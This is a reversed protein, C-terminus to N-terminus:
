EGEESLPLALTFRAGGEARDECWVSGGHARATEEVLSLGLGTGQRSGRSGSRAFREFILERDAEPVGPGADDVRILARGNSTTVNVASLGGGHLDANDFLNVLARNLEQKDALVRVPQTPVSLLETARHNESLAHAVLDRLDVDVVDRHATGADLRGLELLHELARRLRDVEGEVLEVARQARLPLENRSGALVDVSTMLTTVPSRLEHSVDAAFRADRHVREELAEVMTNFSGVIVSLDPDETAGLRTDMQGAAIRAAATAVSELPAIARAAAARSMLTGGITTLAAFAALVSGLTTLTSDLESASAIQYFNAEVAPLPVGVVIVPRGDLRSWAVGAAGSRVVQRVEPAIADEAVNLSSSYWREQRKVLVVSGSSGPVSALVEIVDSGRTRLGDRVMSASAFAQQAATQERQGILFERAALYTGGALIASVVLALSAFSLTITTRLSLPRLRAFRKM